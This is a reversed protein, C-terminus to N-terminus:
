TCTYIYIYIDGVDEDDEDDDDDDDDDFIRLYGPVLVGFPPKKEGGLGLVGWFEGFGGAPRPLCM